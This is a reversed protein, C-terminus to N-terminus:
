ADSHYRVGRYAKLIQTDLCAGYLGLRPDVKSTRYCVGIVLGDETGRSTDNTGNSLSPARGGDNM